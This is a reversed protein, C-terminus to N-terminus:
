ERGTLRDLLWCGRVHAGPGRCHSLVDADTCGAEELADALVGSVHTRWLVMLFPVSKTPPKHWRSSWLREGRDKSLRRGFLTQRLRGAALRVACNGSSPACARVQRGKGPSQTRTRHRRGSGTPWSGLLPPGGGGLWRTTASSPEWLLSSATFRQGRSGCTPLVRANCNRVLVGAGNAAVIRQEETAQGDVFREMVEVARRSNPSVLLHWIRRVCACAFLRLKRVSARERLAKLMTEPNGCALWEAENM